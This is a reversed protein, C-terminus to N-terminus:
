VKDTPEIRTIREDFSPVLAILVLKAYYWGLNYENGYALSATPVSVLKNSPTVWLLAVPTARNRRRPANPDIKQKFPDVVRLNGSSNMEDIVWEDTTGVPLSRPTLYAANVRDDNFYKGRYDYLGKVHCELGLSNCIRKVLADTGKLHETIPKFDIDKTSVGTVPYKFTLGFGLAGGDPLVLPSALLDKLSAKLTAEEPHPAPQTLLPALPPDTAYYLNYTLSVRYGSEVVSVEHEIDSYFAVWALSPPAEPSGKSSLLKSSEFTWSTEKFRLTLDGGSHITPLIIVLSGFMKDSRPTDLHSKFHSGPGYVNLKYLQADIKLSSDNYRLLEDHVVDLLGSKVVNFQASFRSTDLKWAKRYSLDLVDENGRGFTAQDCAQVLANLDHDDVPNTFDLWGADTGNPTKRYALGGTTETLAHTGSCHRSAALKETSERVRGILEKVPGFEDHVPPTNQTTDSM